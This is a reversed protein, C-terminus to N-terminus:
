EDSDKRKHPLYLVQFGSDYKELLFFLRPLTTSNKRCFFYGQGLGEGRVFYILGSTEM